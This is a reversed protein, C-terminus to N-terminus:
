NFRLRCVVGEKQERLARQRDGSSLQRGSCEADKEAGVLSPYKSLEFLLSSACNLLQEVTKSSVSRFSQNRRIRSLLLNVQNRYLAQYGDYAGDSM